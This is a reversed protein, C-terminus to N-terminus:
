AEVKNDTTTTIEVINEPPDFKVFPSIENISAQHLEIM